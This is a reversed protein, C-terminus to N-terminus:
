SNGMASQKEATQLQKTVVSTDDDEKIGSQEEDEIHVEGESRQRLDHDILYLSLMLEAFMRQFAYYFGAWGDLLGGRIILCYLFMAGPAILRWRRIRDSWSLAKPETAILKTAERKSYHSQAWFWRKLPKRDDHLVPSNLDEVAGQVVVRHAHGDERYVAEAKRFLITVPPYIGSRLRKGYVCYIFPARLGSIRDVGQVLKIEEILERTLIYDADLSLVWETSINAYQLGFNCQNAFSDFKRQFVRVQSYKSIIQITEDDSFSDIVVIDDAWALQDLTRGINAAENYTLILPTIRDLM